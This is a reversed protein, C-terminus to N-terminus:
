ESKTAGQALTPYKTLSAFTYLVLTLEREREREREREKSSTNNSAEGRV